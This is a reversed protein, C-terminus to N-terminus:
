ASTQGHAIAISMGSRGPTPTLPVALAAVHRIEDKRLPRALVDYAGLSVVEAWLVPDVDTALVVIRPADVLDATQSLVDRWSGDRLHVDTFVVSFRCKNLESIVERYASAIQVSLGADSLVGSVIQADSRCRTAVLASRPSPPVHHQVHLEVAPISPHRYPM